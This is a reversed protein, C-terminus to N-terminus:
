DNMLQSLLMQFQNDTLTFTNTTNINANEPAIIFLGDSSYKQGGLSGFMEYLKDIRAEIRDLRADINSNNAPPQCFGGKFNSTQQVVTTPPTYSSSYKSYEKDYIHDLRAQEKAYYERNSKCMDDFDKGNM